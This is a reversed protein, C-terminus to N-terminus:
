VDDNERRQPETARDNEDMTCVKLTVSEHAMSPIPLLSGLGMM